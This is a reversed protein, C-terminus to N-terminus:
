TQVWVPDNIGIAQLVFYVLLPHLIMKILLLLGADPKQHQCASPCDGRGHCVARFTSGLEQPQQSDPRPGAPIKLQVYAAAIGALTALIFPHLLVRRVLVTLLSERQEGAGLAMLIPVLTFLLANDFCLILATPVVAAEGLASLTLAPGMYGINSYSGAVGQMTAVATSNRLLVRGVLFSLVFILFTTGTAGAIFRFNSLQELPTSRLIQFFMAPLAVYIIYFQMWALGSEPIQKWRAALWGLLVLGFLPLSLNLVDM